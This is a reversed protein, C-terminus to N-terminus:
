RFVVLLCSDPLWPCAYICIFTCVFTYYTWHLAACQAFFFECAYVHYACLTLWFSCFFEDLITKKENTREHWQQKVNRIQLFRARVDHLSGEDVNVVVVVLSFFICCRETRILEIWHQLQREGQSYAFHKDFDFQVLIAFFQLWFFSSFLWAWFFILAFKPLKKGNPARHEKNRWHLCRKRHLNLM